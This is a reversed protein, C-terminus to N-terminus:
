AAQAASRTQARWLKLLNHTLAVLTFESPVKALGRLLFQRFGRAQKILGHVPEVICKRRAYTARGEETQLKARMAARRPTRSKAQKTQAGETSGVGGVALGGDVRGRHHKERGTAVYADIKRDELAELNAESCYGADATFVKPRREAETLGIEKLNAEVQGLMPSLRPSDASHNSVEEAIIVGSEGDVALQSNYGQIWGSKSKMIRSDPDTFNSQEKPLPM